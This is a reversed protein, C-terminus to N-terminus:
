PPELPVSLSFPFEFFLGELSYTVRSPHVASASTVLANVCLSWFLPFRFMNKVSISMLHILVSNQSLPDLALIDWVYFLFVFLHFDHPWFLLSLICVRSVEFTM